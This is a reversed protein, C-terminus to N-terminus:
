FELTTLGMELAQVFEVLERGVVAMVGLVLAVAVANWMFGVNSRDKYHQTRLLM